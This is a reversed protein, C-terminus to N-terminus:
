TGVVIKVDSRDMRNCALEALEKMEVTHVEITENRPSAKIADALATHWNSRPIKIM